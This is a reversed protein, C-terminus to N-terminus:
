IQFPFTYSIKCYCHKKMNEKFDGNNHFADLAEAQVIKYSEERTMNHELLKLLCAQSYIIGGYKNANNLM